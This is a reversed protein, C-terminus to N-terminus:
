WPQLDAENRRFSFACVNQRVSREQDVPSLGAKVTLITMKNCKQGNILTQSSAPHTM